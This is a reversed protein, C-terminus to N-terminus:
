SGVWSINNNCGTSLQLYVPNSPSRAARMCKRATPAHGPPAAEMPTGVKWFVAPGAPLMSKPRLAGPRPRHTARKLLVVTPGLAWTQACAVRTSRGDKVLPTADLVCPFSKSNLHASPM